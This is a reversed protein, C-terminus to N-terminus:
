LVFLFRVCFLVILFLTVFLSVYFCVFCYSVNLRLRFLIVRPMLYVCFLCFLFKFCLFIGGFCLVVCFLSNFLGFSLECISFLVFFLGSFETYLGCVLESECELYDFPLRFSDFILIIFFFCCFVLGVMFFNFVYFQWVLVFKLCFFCFYDLVFFCYVLLSFIYDCLLGCLCVRIVSLYVFCSCFIFCGVCFVCLIDYCLFFVCMFLYSFCLDCVMLLGLPILFWNIFVFFLLGFLIFCFFFFDVFVLFLLFKFFLKVGDCIPTCIGFWFLCPGCRLFFSTYPFLTSRPPRRIMLFFVSM